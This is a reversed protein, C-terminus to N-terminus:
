PQQITIKKTYVKGGFNIKVVYVDAPQNTIDITTESTGADVSVNNNYTFRGISNVLVVNMTGSATANFFINLSNLAPVPGIGVIGQPITKTPDAAITSYKLTASTDSCGTQFTVLVQYNGNLTAAYTQGTAGTIAQGNDYWQNGTTFNSKLTSGTPTITPRVVTVPQLAASPCGASQVVMNYFYYYYTTAASNGTITFIGNGTSFPYGTVGANNRYLTATDNYTTTIIYDGAAPILLNLKYIKGTDSANDVQAGQAPTNSTAVLNLTTSSFVEGDTNTVAFTVSGSNGVYLRASELIVPATASVNITPSFQNYGGGSFVEKNAPGITGSFDNLGAYYTNNIPATSTEVPSGIAIPATSNAAPYWLVEGDGTGALLYSSTEDCYNASLASLTPAANTTITATASNNITIIDNALNTTATITYTSSALATFTENLTFNEQELPALTGTYTENFTTATGSPATVTVTVPVNSIAAAGYNKITVTIPTVGSCAGSSDPSTIATIGADTTTKTFFVRYDQTEGKAYTGCPTITSTDSTETLVVRLVSYNGPVVTAPVTINTIYTGTANIVPTTAILDGADTFVGDGKWDVYIKAAKNFNSGCTGLTLSLPYTKGQQLTDTLNTFDSFTTCGSTQTNNINSLTFNNVRSDANSLPASTCYASGGVGTVITAFAQSGSQLTGKHSVTITYTKGPTATGIYVQEIDDVINNGTTANAQPQLPNLVWPKFTTTGDSVSIDLDNVLTPTRNNVTGDTIATGEPDTWSITAILPGDGSAVVTTTRTQGQLLTDEKIISKTGNDTIAQAAKQMNLLGWGYIYDPGPNGADDATGCALGKLTSALMFSNAHKQAWYEQLLYLSGCVNPTSMSTGDLVVYNAPDAIGTSLVNVGNGCIDPKVRGDDAPGWASFYAISIASNSSPGYPLPNVAGVTLVDKATAPPTVGDYWQQNSIGDTATHTKQILTTNTASTYGYYTGGVDPGPYGRSNAAAVVMLYYPANYAIQDFSQAYSDYIGFTADVTDGPTGYWTWTTGTEDLLWGAQVGYSHNSLLLDAAAGGITTVDNDFDYSQLTAANYSMGKAPPYVGKAIMTGAVHTSHEVIGQSTNITITKGAFEQHQAYVAGGDWEALKNNLIASSGSLNLALVGGPNVTNTRTTAASIINDSTRHYVPFGRSDLGQLSFVGGNKTIKRVPWNHSKALDLAKQHSAEYDSKKKSVIDALAKKHAANVFTQQSFAEGTFFLLLFGTIIVPYIKKM